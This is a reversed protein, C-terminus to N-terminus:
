AYTPTVRRSDQIEIDSVNEKQGEKAIPTIRTVDTLELFGIMGYSQEVEDFYEELIDCNELDTLDLELSQHTKCCSTTTQLDTGDM